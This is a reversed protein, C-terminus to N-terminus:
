KKVGKQYLAIAKKTQCDRCIIKTHGENHDKFGLCDHGIPQLSDCKPCYEFRGKM